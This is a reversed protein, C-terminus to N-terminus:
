SLYGKNDGYNIFYAINDLTNYILYNIVLSYFQLSVQM